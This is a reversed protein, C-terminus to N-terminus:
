RYRSLGRLPPPRLDLARLLQSMSDVQDDHKGNPFAAVEHLFRELWSAKPPLRVYGAEIKASQASMRQVKDPKPNIAWTESLGARRLAQYLAIGSSANEVVIMAPEWHDRLKIATHVLDPFLYQARHVDLLDVYPGLLGWTSCVCWDNTEGPIAATDWSQVIAEYDHPKALAPYTTFWDPKVLTGGAPVPRQQYQAEFAATGLERKIRDLEDQGLRNPQLLDGPERCWTVDDGLAIEERVTAIAPLELVDWDGTAILRGLLDDEHLRQAVVVIAGTKPDDLRSSVTGSFWHHVADRRAESSADEAKLPDDVIVVDGGKGTLSGGVSTAIRYGNQTTRFEESTNKAPDLELGPFTAKHWATNILKRTQLSFSQALDASHSACIIRSTPDRGLIWAPFAVSACISKLHRPPMAILVRQTRGSQIGALKHCIARIHEGPIYTDGPNLSVFARDVFSPLDERYLSCIADVPTPM